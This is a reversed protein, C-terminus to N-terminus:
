KNYRPTSNNHFGHTTDPYTYMELKKGASKLAAEFDPRMANIRPDNEAYQIM